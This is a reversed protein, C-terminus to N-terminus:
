VENFYDKDVPSNEPCCFDINTLDWSSKGTIQTDRNLDVLKVFTEKQKSPKFSDMNLYDLLTDLSHNKSREVAVCKEGLTMCREQSNESSIKWSKPSGKGVFTGPFRLFTKLSKYFTWKFSDIDQEINILLNFFYINYSRFFCYSTFIVVVTTFLKWRDILNTGKFTFGGCMDDSECLEVAERYHIFTYYNFDNLYKVGSWYQCEMQTSIGSLLRKVLCVSCDPWCIRIFIFFM